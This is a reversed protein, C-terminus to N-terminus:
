IKKSLLKLLINMKYKPILKLNKHFNFDLKSHEGNQTNKISEDPTKCIDGDVGPSCYVVSCTRDNPFCVSADECDTIDKGCERFLDPEYKKVKTYYYEKICASDECGIFCKEISPDCVGEYGVVYDHKIIFRYYSAFSVIIIFPVLIYFIHNLFFNKMSNYM